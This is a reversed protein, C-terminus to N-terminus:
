PAGTITGHLVNTLKLMNQKNRSRAKREADSMRARPKDKGKGFAYVQTCDRGKVDKEWSKIYVIKHKNFCRMLSQATTLHMGTEEVIDHTTCPDEILMKFVRAYMEQNVKILSM